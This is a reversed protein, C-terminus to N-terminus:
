HGEGEDPDACIGMYGSYRSGVDRCPFSTAFKTLM